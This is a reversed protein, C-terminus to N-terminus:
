GVGGSAAPLDEDRTEDAGHHGCGDLEEDLDRTLQATSSAVPLLRRPAPSIQRDESAEEPSKEHPKVTSRIVMLRNLVDFWFPAGLTAALVTILWGLGRNVWALPRASLQGSKWGIPLELKALAEVAEEGSPAQKSAQEASVVLASRAAPDRYLFDALALTDVNVGVTVVIAIVLVIWQTSRKYWGSVRDMSANFWDEINKRAVDFDGYSTDLAALLVRRVGPNAIKSLSARTSQVTMPPSSPDGSAADTAEGRMAIDLLALAFSRAPVYSPLGRGNALVSLSKQFPKPAYKELFLGFLLPHNFVSSALGKGDRDDLLARIGRELYAARTKLFSEIGERIASCLTSVLLFVFVIGVVLDVIRLIDM